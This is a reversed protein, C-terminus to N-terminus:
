ADERTMTRIGPMGLNVTQRVKRMTAVAAQIQNRDADTLDDLDAEIKRILDRLQSIEEDAPLAKARAWEELDRSALVHERDALMQQLYGKLEPLYSPDSRFHGCGLCTFRYPCAKGAAKVNSPETCVGFPVAVQGVRMRAHEDGLLRTVGHFVRRGRGDFQHQAVRNVAVRVRNETVRYYTLTTQMSRHGMLDRLVDPPTGNDAHRQAYSHRYAYPVVGARNFPQGDEDVLQKVIQDVFRRHADSFTTVKFRKTGDPNLYDRPFLALKDLPTDPFRARLADKQATIVEATHDAIPLRRGPRNNKYDTYILVAKGTADRTLCDWPLLCIEEPRRGTDILLEIIRRGQLGSRAEMLPLQDAITRLVVAPLDRGPAEDTQGRPVDSGRLVFDVNLGALPQGPQALGYARVDDLFRRVYRCQTLRLYDSIEEARRKHALRTLFTLIDRRDLQALDEGRDDRSLRLSQSLNELANLMARATGSAQRGRHLPLDEAAWHKAGERLWSQTVVTFDLTGALGLVGLDWVDKRQEQEPSTLTRRVATTMGRLMSIVDHRSRGIEVQLLDELSAIQHRRALTVVARLVTVFTRVQDDTRRQLAVLIELQVREPLGRLIVIHDIGVPGAADIWTTLDADPYDRCHTNWRSSHPTCLGKRNAAQRICSLVRCHGLAPLVTPRGTAIWGELSLGSNAWASRHTSCVGDKVHTPRSCGPVKCFLEGKNRKGSRTQCYTQLDAESGLRNFRQECTQCLVVHPSRVGATCDLVACKQLGLLRHGRPPSLVQTTPDWGADTLFQPRLVARLRAEVEDPASTPRRLAALPTASM